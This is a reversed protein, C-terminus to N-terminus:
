AKSEVFSFIMEWIMEQNYGEVGGSHYIFEGKAKCNQCNHYAAEIALINEYSINTDKEATIFLFPSQISKLIESTNNKTKTFSPTDIIVRDVMKEMGAILANVGLDSGGKIILKKPTVNNRILDKKLYNLSILIQEQREEISSNTNLRLEVVMYGRELFHTKNTIFANSEKDSEQLLVVLEMEKGAPKSLILQKSNGESSSINIIHKHLAISFDETIQAETKKCANIILLTLALLLFTPFVFKKM